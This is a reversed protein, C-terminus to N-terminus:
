DNTTELWQSLHCLLADPDGRAHVIKRRSTAGAAIGLSTRPLRWTKALLKIVADNAKGGEPAATVSVRIEAAGDADLRTGGVVARVARPQVRIAVNVGDKRRSLPGTSAV